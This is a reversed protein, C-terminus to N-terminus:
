ALVRLLRLDDDLVVAGGRAGPELHGVDTRGLVAAPTSTLAALATGLDLGAVAVAHRLARDLTLTSGAIAGGRALRATGGSVEVDLDGLRYTGDASGAAAMADTVLAVRGPGAARAALALVAPDLHVGDAVLEVVVREDALLAGVPGPARHHLPPMANFLHTALRAGAEVARRATAADADTHGLAAVAGAAVVRRVAELGGPLEPALTVVRVPGAGLLADLDAPDPERLLAPDHAGRHAPSLWPGELHVGALLGDAVLDACAALAAALEGLPRTVLSAVLTTTGHARHTAAATAAEEASGGFSAGGGGHCHLDVFGPVVHAGTVTEDAAPAPGRGVRLVEAGRLLVWGDPLVRGGTRVVGRALVTM